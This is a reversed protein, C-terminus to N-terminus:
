GSDRGREAYGKLRAQAIPDLIEILDFVPKDV